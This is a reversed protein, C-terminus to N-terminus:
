SKKKTRPKQMPLEEYSKFIFDALFERDELDSIVFLPKSGEYPPAEEAEKLLEGGAM